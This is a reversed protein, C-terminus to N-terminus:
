KFWREEYENNWRELRLFELALGVIVLWFVSEGIDTNFFLVAVGFIVVAILWCILHTKM